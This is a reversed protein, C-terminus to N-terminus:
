LSCYPVQCYRVARGPMGTHACAEALPKLVLALCPQGGDLGQFLGLSLELHLVAQKFHRAVRGVQAQGLLLFLVGLQSRLLLTTRSVLHPAIQLCPRVVPGEGGDAPLFPREGSSVGASPLSPSAIHGTM